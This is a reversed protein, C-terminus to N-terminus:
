LQQLSAVADPDCPGDTRSILEDFLWEGDVLLM